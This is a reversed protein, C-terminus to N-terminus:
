GVCLPARNHIHRQGAGRGGVVRKTTLNPLSVL